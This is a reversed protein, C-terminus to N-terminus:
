QNSRGRLLAEPHRDLYGTLQDMSQLTSDAQTMLQELNHEFDSDNGYGRNVNNLTQTLSAMAQQLHADAVTTNTTVLLKNLNDGLKGFQVKALNDSITSLSSAIAGFASGQCPLVFADGETTVQVPAAGPVTVLSIIQQGTVYNATAVEVRLGSNVLKQIGQELTMNNPLIKAQFVREPQLEMAVRVKPIATNMDLILKVDTVQGVQIGLVDVPAGAVLGNVSSEFYTVVPIKRLFGAANAADRSAYLPFRANDPSPASTAAESPLDFSVGGSLLAQLSQFEIHFAGGQIGATIGSSNWFHSQPRVFQDYPSRVFINVTVPGLGNGIDYGLVEGVPIDRYFVPSGTGLSGINDAKLVYTHGPVDSRVGPPEELGTFSTLYHGGPLGPDVTIYDGSVLTQLGSISGGGFSPRVVWFRAHDTLFRAGVNNMRVRVIVHKNDNSLDVSEVTGLAVSKYQVQTQGSTLGSATDFTLTLLPGREAVTRYGLYAAIIAAIIPIVWVVSFRPPRTQAPPPNGKEGSTTPTDSM